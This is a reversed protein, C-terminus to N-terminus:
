NHQLTGVDLGTEGTGTTLGKAYVTYSKGESVQVDSVDLVVIDGSSVVVRYLGSAIASFPSLESANPNNGIFAVNEYTKVTDGENNIWFVDAAPADPALHLFRLNANGAGASSPADELLVTKVNGNEPVDYVFLSYSKDKELNVSGEYFNTTGDNTIRILQQGADVEVYPNGATGTFDGYAIQSSTLSASDLYVDVEPAGPSAHVIAIKAKEEVPVPTDDDKDCAVFAASLLLVSLAKFMLRKM